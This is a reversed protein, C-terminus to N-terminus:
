FQKLISIYQTIQKNTRRCFYHVPNYISVPSFHGGGGGGGGYKIHHYDTDRNQSSKNNKM